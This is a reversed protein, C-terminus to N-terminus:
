CSRPATGLTYLTTRYALLALYPDGEKNLLRKSTGVARESEGNCQPYYPSSTKHEFQYNKSFDRFAESAFQPGNDSVVTEPIGHRASISKTHTIVEEATTRSLKAVEIFRSYYDVILLYNNKRWEFM